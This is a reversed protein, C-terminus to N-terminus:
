PRGFAQSLAAAIRQAWTEGADAVLREAAATAASVAAQEVAAAHRQLQESLQQNFVQAQMAVQQELSSLRGEVRHLTDMAADSRQLADALSSPSVPQNQEFIRRLDEIERRLESGIQLLTRQANDTSSTNAAPGETPLVARLSRIVANESADSTPARAAPPPPPPPAAHLARPLPFEAGVAAALSITGTRPLDQRLPQQSARVELRALLVRLQEPHPPKQLAGSAGCARAQATFEPSDNSSCLVVPVQNLRPDAKIARLADFGDAGPMLHDLFILDPRRTALYEHAEEASGATDVQYQHAELSRRLAFRASKSDDVVLATKPAAPPSM